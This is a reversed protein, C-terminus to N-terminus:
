LKVENQLLETAHTSHRIHSVLRSVKALVKTMSAAQKLGDKVILQLIHNFCPYHQHPLLDLLKADTDVIPLLEDNDNASQSDLGPLTVFARIMNSASDTIVSSIKSSSLDFNALIEQYNELIHEATHKGSFRNCALMVSELKFTRIFHATIGLYSRMDRSTWIDLTISVSTVSALADKVKTQLSHRSPTEKFACNIKFHGKFVRHCKKLLTQMNSQLCYM